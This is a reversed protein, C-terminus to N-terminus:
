TGFLGRAMHPYWETIFWHVWGGFLVTLLGGLALFPGFPIYRYSQSFFDLREFSDEDPELVEIRWLRAEGSGHTTDLRGKLTLHADEEELIRAAPLVMEIALDAGAEMEHGGRAEIRADRIRARDFESTEGGGTVKLTCPMPRRKGVAFMVGGILAGGLCALALAYLAYLWGVMAGIFGLLKVDGLGMAEKKLIWSGITRILLIVGAGVLCGLGAEMWASLAPKVGGLTHPLILNLPALAIFFVMGPKSIKDPIIRYDIDIFSIAVLAAVFLAVLVATVVDPVHGHPASYLSAWADPAGHAQWALLCFVGTLLEVFPYRASIATKCTRCKAALMLWSLVPINDHWRIPSGCGPCASRPKSLNEGRPLRWIVVNLFSGVVLGFLFAVVSHFLDM